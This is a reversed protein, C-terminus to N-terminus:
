GPAVPGEGSSFGFWVNERQGQQSRNEAGPQTEEEFTQAFHIRFEGQLNSLEAESRVNTM